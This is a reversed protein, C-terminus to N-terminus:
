VKEIVFSLQKNSHNVNDRNIPYLLYKSLIVKLDDYHKEISSM